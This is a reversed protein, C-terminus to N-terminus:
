WSTVARIGISQDEREGFYAKTYLQLAFGESVDWGVFATVPITLGELDENTNYALAVEGGWHFGGNSAQYELGGRYLEAEFGGWLTEASASASFGNGLVCAIRGRAQWIERSNRVEFVAVKGSVACGRIADALTAELELDSEYIMDTNGGLSSANWVDGCVTLKGETRCALLMTQLVPTGEGLTVGFDQLQRQSQVEAQATYAWTAEQAFAPTTVGVALLLLAILKNITKM